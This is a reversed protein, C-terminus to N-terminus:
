DGMRFFRAFDNGTSLTDIGCLILIEDYEGGNTLEAFSVDTYRPDVVTIDFHLALFPIIANAYSDKILLLKLREGMGKVQVVGHNGGLFVRYKDKEGLFSFDYLPIEGGERMLVLEGDGDYRWLEVSDRMFSLLGAASYSTGLFDRSVAQVEFADRELPTYGLVDGLFSYSVYAGYTTLHHDTAYYVRQDSNARRLESLLKGGLDFRLYASEVFYEASESTGVGDALGLADIARPVVICKVKNEIKAIADLNQIFMKESADLGRQVLSGDGYFLVGCSEQRGICLEAVTRGRVFGSRLIIHDSFFNAVQRFYKGSVLSQTSLIPVGSLARNEEASFTNKPLVFTLAGILICVTLCVSVTIFDWIKKM